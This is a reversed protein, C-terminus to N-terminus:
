PVPPAQAEGSTLGANASPVYVATAVCGPEIPPSAPALLEIVNSISVFGGVTANFAGGDGDFSVVGDKVPVALSSVCTVTSIKSPVFGSPSITAVATAGPVRAPHVAPSTVGARGPPRCVKVANALWGLPIWLPGPFLAGTVKTTSVSGGVTVRSPGGDGDFSVVGDKEPVALSLM